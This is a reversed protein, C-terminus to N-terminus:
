RSRRWLHLALSVVFCAAAIVVAFGIYIPLVIVEGVNPTTMLQLWFYGGGLLALIGLSLFTNRAWM